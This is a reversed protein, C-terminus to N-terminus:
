DQRTITPLGTTPDVNSKLADGPDGTVPEARIVGPRNLDAAIEAAMDGPTQKRPAEVEPAAAPAAVPEGQIMATMLRDSEIFIEMVRRSDISAELTEAKSQIVEMHKMTYEDFM